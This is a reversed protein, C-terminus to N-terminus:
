LFSYHPVSLAYPILGLVHPPLVSFVVWNELHPSVSCEPGVYRVALGQTLLRLCLLSSSPIWSKCTRGSRQRHAPFQPCCVCSNHYSTLWLFTCISFYLLYCQLIQVFIHDVSKKLCCSSLTHSKTEYIFVKILHGKYLFNGGKEPLCFIFLYICLRSTLPWTTFFLCNLFVCIVICCHRPSCVSSHLRYKSQIRKPIHSSWSHLGM